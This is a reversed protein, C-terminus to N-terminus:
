DHPPAGSDLNRLTKEFAKIAQEPKVGLQQAQLAAAHLAPELLAIRENVARTATAQEAVEMGVGRRRTLLGQAELLSYAKSVTMPNIAHREALSRVSPLEDGAKLQGGAVLRQVQEVLQRYIPTASSPLVDFMHM